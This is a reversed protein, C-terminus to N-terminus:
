MPRCLLKKETEEISKIMDAGAKKEIYGIADALNPARSSLNHCDSGIIVRGEEQRLLNMCFRRKMGFKLFSEANMQITVPLGM